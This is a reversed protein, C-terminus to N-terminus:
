YDWNEAIEEWDIEELMKHMSARVDINGDDFWIICAHSGCGCGNDKKVTEHSTIWAVNGRRPLPETYSDVVYPELWCFSKAVDKLSKIERTSMEPTPYGEILGSYTRRSFVGDDSFNFNKNKM